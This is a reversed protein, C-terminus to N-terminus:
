RHARWVARSSASASSGTSWSSSSLTEFAAMGSPSITSRCSWRGPRVKPRSLLYELEGLGESYSMGPAASPLQAGGQQALKSAVLDPYTHDATAQAREGPALSM